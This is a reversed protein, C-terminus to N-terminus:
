SGFVFAVLDGYDYRCFNQVEKIFIIWCISISTNHQFDSIRKIYEPDNELRKEINTRHRKAHLV